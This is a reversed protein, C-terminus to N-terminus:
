PSNTKIDFWNWGRYNIIKKLAPHTHLATITEPAAVLQAGTKEFNFNKIDITVHVADLQTSKIHHGDNNPVDGLSFSLHQYRNITKQIIEPESSLQEWFKFQPYYFVGGVVPVGAALLAMSESAGPNIILVRKLSKKDESSYQIINQIEPNLSIQNPAVSLPNFNWTAILYIIVNLAIAESIRRQLICYSIFLSAFIIAIFLIPSLTSYFSAPTALLSIIIPTVSFVALGILAISNHINFNSGSIETDRSPILALGIICALGLALDLRLSPVMHWFILKAFWSSVGTCYFILLFSTFVIWGLWIKHHNNKKFLYYSALAFLPILPFTYSSFESENWASNRLETLTELNTYGRFILHWPLEGGQLAARQGPYVTARMLSITDHADLWWALLIGSCILIAISIGAFVHKNFYLTKRYQFFYAILFIAYFSAITIQWPPYLVLAFGAALLGLFVSHIYIDSSSNTKLIKIFVFTAATPFFVVYLPWHSWGAAYPALCFLISLGLNRGSREPAVTNLLFWLALLCSIIPFFWYWSLAQRLPLFFFGWTAPRGLASVHWVPVGTMGVILMNQGEIGLNKNVIPFSPHHNVQALANATVVMWEDSRIPRPAFLLNKTGDHASIFPHESRKSDGILLQVSSGSIGFAVLSLFFAISYFIISKKKKNVWTNLNEFINFKRYFLFIVISILFIALIFWHRKPTEPSSILISDSKGAILPLNFASTSPFIATVKVQHHASFLNIPARAIINFGAHSAKTTGFYKPLDDRVVSTSSIIEVQQDDITIQFKDPIQETSSDFSWGTIHVSHNALQHEITEIYGYIGAPIKEEAQALNIPIFIAFFIAILLNWFTSRDNLM